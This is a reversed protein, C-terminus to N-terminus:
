CPCCTFPYRAGTANYMALAVPQSSIEPPPPLYLTLVSPTMLHWDWGDKQSWRITSDHQVRIAFDWPVKYNPIRNLAITANTMLMENFSPDSWAKAMAAILAVKFEAFDTDSPMLGEDFGADQAVAAVEAPPKPSYILPLTDGFLLPRQQYYDALAKARVATDWIGNYEGPFLPLSITISEPLSSPWIWENDIWRSKSVVIRLDWMGEWPWQYKSFRQKLVAISNKGGDDTLATGWDPDAWAEAVARLYTTRFELLKNRTEDRTM